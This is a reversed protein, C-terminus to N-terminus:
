NRIGSVFAELEKKENKVKGEVVAVFLKEKITKIQMKDIGMKLLDNGNLALDNESKIIKGNEIDKLIKLFQKKKILGTLNKAQQYNKAVLSIKAYNENRKLKEFLEIAKKTETKEEKSRGLIEIIKKRTKGKNIYALEILTFNKPIKLESGFLFRSIGLKNLIRIARAQSEESRESHCFLILNLEETIRETSINALLEVKKRAAWRTHNDIVFNLKV